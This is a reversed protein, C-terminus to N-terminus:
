IRAWPPERRPRSHGDPADSALPPVLVPCWWFISRHPCRCRGKHFLRSRKKKKKLFFNVAASVTIEAPESDGHAASAGPFPQHKPSYSM